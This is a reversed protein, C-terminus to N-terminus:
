ENNEIANITNEASEMLMGEVERARDITETQEEWVHDKKAESSIDTENSCAILFSCSFMLLIVKIFKKM